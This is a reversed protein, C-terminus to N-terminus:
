KAEGESFDVDPIEMQRKNEPIEGTELIEFNDLRIVIMTGAEFDYTVECQINRYEYGRDVNGALLRCHYNLSKEKANLEAVVDKKQEQVAELEVTQKALDNSMSKKEEETFACRLSKTFKEKKVAM